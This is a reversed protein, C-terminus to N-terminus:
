CGTGTPAACGCRKGKSNQSSQPALLSYEVASAGLSAIQPSTTLSQRPQLLAYCPCTPATGGAGARRTGTCQTWPRCALARCVASCRKGPAHSRNSCDCATDAGQPAGRSTAARPCCLQAARRPSGHRFPLLTAAPHAVHVEHVVLVIALVRGRHHRLLGLGRAAPLLRHEVGARSKRVPIPPRRHVQLLLLAALPPLLPPTM